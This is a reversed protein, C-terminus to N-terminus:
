RLIVKFASDFIPSLIEAGQRSLHDEDQYMVKGDIIVRCKQIDCLYTMPDVLISGTDKSITNLIQRALAQRRVTYGIPPAIELTTGTMKAQALAEPAMLGTEPVDMVLIARTRQDSFEQITKRLSAEVPASWDSFDPKIKADFYVGEGPLETRHVYKPWYGALFVFPFKRRRILDVVANNYEKCRDLVAQPGFAADPLPPCSARGVFLGSTGSQRAAKDIAPAIAAAHSDGWVLFQIKEKDGTGMTCLKGARIADPSLGKGDSDAFCAESFFPSKDYTAAYLQYVDQPLRQPIGELNKVTIGFVVSALVASSSLGFIVTRSSAWVGYRAPQEIFRWSLYALGFSVAIVQLSNVITLDHGVAFRVFVILPWHWLYLSYSIRGIAISARNNLIVAPLGDSCRAHIVLATSFCPLAAYLGPFPIDSSYLFVALLIGGIGLLSLYKSLAAPYNPRPVLAVLSGTLLEWIRFQLLYFAKEPSRFVEWSSAALSVLLVALLIAAMHKRAFRHAAFLSIPFLIYFQEEISLSWTHLLPKMEAAIDFYGSERRFLINSTFIAAAKVSEAFYVFEKPMLLFWAVAATTAIMTFLAPLIRRIRRLYFQWFSFDGRELDALIIRAMFFGSLVFFVDVGVFGGQFWALDAHFFLVPLIAIARLGDLDPRYELHRTALTKDSKSNQAGGPATKGHM